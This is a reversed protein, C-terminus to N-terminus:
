EFDHARPDILHTLLRGNRQTPDETEPIRKPSVERVRRRVLREARRGSRWESLTKASSRSWASGSTPPHEVAYALTAQLQGAFNFGEDAAILDNAGLELYNNLRDRLELLISELDAILELNTIQPLGQEGM